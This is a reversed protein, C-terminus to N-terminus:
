RTCVERASDQWIRQWQAQSLNADVNLPQYFIREDAHTATTGLLLCLTLLLRKM